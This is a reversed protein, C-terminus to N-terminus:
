LIMGFSKLSPSDDPDIIENGKKEKKKGYKFLPLFVNAIRRQVREKTEGFEWAHFWAHLPLKKEVAVDLIGKLFLSSMSQDLCLSPHIDYLQGYGGSVSLYLTSSNNKFITLFFRSLSQFVKPARSIRAYLSRNLTSPSIDFISPEIGINIFHNKMASNVLAMGHVPPPFPGILFIENKLIM